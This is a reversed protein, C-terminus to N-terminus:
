TDIFAHRVKHLTSAPISLGFNENMIFATRETTFDNMSTIFAHDGLTAIHPEQFGDIIAHFLAVCLLNSHRKAEEAVEIIIEYPDFAIFLLNETPIAIIGPKDPPLQDLENYVKDKARRLENELNILPAQVLGKIGREAAWAKARSHDNAPSVAIEVVNAILRERYENDTATSYITERIEQLVVPLAKLSISSLIQVYPQVRPKTIDDVGPSRWIADWVHNEITLYVQSNHQQEGGTLLRSVEVYIEETNDPDVLLLDPIKGTEKYYPDFSVRFAVDRFKAAASLVTLVESAKRADKLRGVISRFGQAGEFSGLDNALRILSRKAHPVANRFHWYFVPNGEEASRQLFQEGLLTRLYRIAGKLSVREENTLGEILESQEIYKDWSVYDEYTKFIASPDTKMPITFIM